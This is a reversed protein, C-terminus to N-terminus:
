NFFNLNFGFHHCNTFYEMDLILVVKDKLFLCCPIENCECHIDLIDEDKYDDYWGADGNDDREITERISKKAEDLSDFPYDEKDESPIFDLSQNIRDIVDQKEIANDYESTIVIYNGLIESKTNKM